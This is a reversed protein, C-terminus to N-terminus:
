GCLEEDSEEVSLCAEGGEMKGELVEGRVVGEALGAGIEAEVVAESEELVYSGTGARVRVQVRVRLGRTVGGGEVDVNGEGDVV